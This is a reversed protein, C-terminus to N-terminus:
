EESRWAEVCAEDCFVYREYEFARKAESETPRERTLEADYHEERMDVPSGCYACTGVEDSWDRRRAVGRVSWDPGPKSQQVPHASKSM